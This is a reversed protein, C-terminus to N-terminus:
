RAASSDRPELQVAPGRRPGIRCGSANSRARTAARRASRRRAARGAPRGTVGAGGETSWGARPGGRAGRGPPRPARRGRSTAQFGAGAAAVRRGMGRAM